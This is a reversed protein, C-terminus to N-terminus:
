IFHIVFACKFFAPRFLLSRREEGPMVKGSTVVLIVSSTKIQKEEKFFTNKKIYQRLAPLSFAGAVKEVEGSDASREPM